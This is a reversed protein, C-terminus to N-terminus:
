RVEKAPTLGCAQAARAGSTVGGVGRLRVATACEVAIDGGVPTRAAIEDCAQASMERDALVAARIAEAIARPSVLPLARLQELEDLLATMDAHVNGILAARAEAQGNAGYLYLVDDDSEAEEALQVATMRGTEHGDCVGSHMDCIGSCWTKTSVVHFASANAALLRARLAPIDITM